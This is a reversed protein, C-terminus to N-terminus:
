DTNLLFCTRKGVLVWAGGEPSAWGTDALQSFSLDRLEERNLWPPGSTRWKQLESNDFAERKPPTIIEWKMWPFHLNFSKDWFDCQQNSDFKSSLELARTEQYRGGRSEASPPRGVLASGTSLDAAGLIAEELPAGEETQCVPVRATPPFFPGEPRITLSLINPVRGDVSPGPGGRFLLVSNYRTM